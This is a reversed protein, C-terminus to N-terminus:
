ARTQWYEDGYDHLIEAGQQIDKTAYFRVFRNDDDIEWSANAGEKSHNYLMGHGMMLLYDGEAGPSNFLYDNLRNAEQLDDDDIVLYTCREITEGAAIAALAFVGHGHISSDKVCIKKVESDM